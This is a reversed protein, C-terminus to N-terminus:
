DPIDVPLIETLEKDTLVQDEALRRAQNEITKEFLNRVFRANGFNTDKQTVVTSLYEKLKTESESNLHYDYQDCNKKFIQLLETESYDPFDIYRNFRSQLGPNSDIFRKMDDTYGALIVVLRNRDDEMRKLLTAIAERGYDHEDGSALSYAEDIFLVGDLAKNIIKNTKVATQGVYEAVLGSRDTEVLHGKELIGLKKYIGAVVRAVTTKGTGPNGTFVCHYSIPSAKFGQAERKQKIVIFSELKKVEQKVSELGILADLDILSEMEENTVNKKVKKLEKEYQPIKRIETLMINLVQENSVILEVRQHPYKFYRVIGFQELQEMLRSSRNYGILFTRQFASVPAFGESFVYHAVDELYDDLEITSSSKVVMEKIKESYKLRFEELNQIDQDIILRSLQNKSNTNNSSSISVLVDNTSETDINQRSTKEKRKKAISIIIFFVIFLAIILFIIALSTNYTFLYIDILSLVILTIILYGLPLCGMNESMESNKGQSSSECKQEVGSYIKQRNRLGTGPISTNLYTGKEGFNVSAGKGGVSLSPGKKGINVHIGPAIKIRKRFSWAM